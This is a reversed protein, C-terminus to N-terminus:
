PIDLRFRSALRVEGQSGNKREPLDSFLSHFFLM